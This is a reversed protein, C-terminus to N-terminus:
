TIVLVAILIMLSVVVAFVTAGNRRINAREARPSLRPHASKTPLPRGTWNTPTESFTTIPTLHPALALTAAHGRFAPSRVILVHGTLADLKARDLQDLSIAFGEVLYQSLGIGTLDALDIIDIQGPDLDHVGLLNAATQDNIDRAQKPGPDLAFLRLIGREGPPIKLPDIM